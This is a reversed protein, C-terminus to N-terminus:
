PEYEEPATMDDEQKALFAAKEEPDEDCTCCLVGVQARRVGCHECMPPLLSPTHRAAIVLTRM